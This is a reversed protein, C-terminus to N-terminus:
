NYVCFSKMSNAVLAYDYGKAKKRKEKEKRLDILGGQRIFHIKVEHPISDLLEEPIRTPNTRWSKNSLLM